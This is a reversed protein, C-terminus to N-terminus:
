EGGGFGYQKKMLLYIFCPAGIMSVLIGIPLETYPIIIRSLVDAWVMFLGGGFFVIPLLVKHNTGYILRVFHPVILGIFGIMGSVYVIFGIMCTTMLLFFHRSRHLNNGLTVSVDDGLLMLNLTRYQTIFFLTGTGVILYVIGISSWKAGALSGMLWFTIDQIGDKDNAVFIIFSSFSSFVANIALGSLLLKVASARTGMNAITMVLLIAIFAGFSAVIGIYNEGFALGVGTLIALTAGFSAGSSIGLVYPDALPNKIVAQMVSGCVSLGGGVAVALVLRPLRFLLVVDHIPGEGYTSLSPIKFLQYGLVRYVEGINIHTSGITVGIVISFFVAVALGVISIGVSKRGKKM